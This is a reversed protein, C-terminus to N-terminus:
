SRRSRASACDKVRGFIKAVFFYSFLAGYGRRTKLATKFFKEAFQLSDAFHSILPFEFL